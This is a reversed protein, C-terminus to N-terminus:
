RIKSPRGPSPSHCKVIDQNTDIARSGAVDPELQSEIDRLGAVRM